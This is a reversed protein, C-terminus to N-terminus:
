IRKRRRNKNVTAGESNLYILESKTDNAFAWKYYHFGLIRYIESGHIDDDLALFSM